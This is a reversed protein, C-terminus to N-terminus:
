CEKKWIRLALIINTELISGFVLILMCITDHEGFADFKSLNLRFVLKPTKCFIGTCFPLRFDGIKTKIKSNEVFSPILAGFKM